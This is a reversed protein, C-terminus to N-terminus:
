PEVYTEIEGENHATESFDKGVTSMTTMVLDGALERVADSADPLAEAM